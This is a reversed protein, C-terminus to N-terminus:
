GPQYFKFVSVGYVDGLFAEQVYEELIQQRQRIKKEIKSAEKEISYREVPALFSVVFLLIAIACAILTRYKKLIGYAMQALARTKHLIDLIRM